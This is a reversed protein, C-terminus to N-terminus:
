GKARSRHFRALRRNVEDISFAEPDFADGVWELLEEHREHEPDRIAELFDYYGGVGGCDEPPGHLKGATCVPYPIGPEPPLVKKVAIRHEWGDGFDYTYDAKAGVKGLVDFLRAKREDMPADGGTLRDDPDPVGFRQRGIRFEHLHCEEWGMADQLVDHLQALTLEAPVLLRRWIPPKTDILTVKLQYIKQPVVIKDTRM